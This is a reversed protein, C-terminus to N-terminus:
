FFFTVNVIFDCNFLQLLRWSFFCIYQFTQILFIPPFVLHPLGRQYCVRWWSAGGSKECYFVHSILCKFSPPSLSNDRLIAAGRSKRNPISWLECNINKKFMLKLQNNVVILFFGIFDIYIYGFWEPIKKLSM